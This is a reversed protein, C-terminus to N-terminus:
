EGGESTIEILDEDYFSHHGKEDVRWCFIRANPYMERIEELKYQNESSIYPTNRPKRLGEISKDYSLSKTRGCIRCRDKWIYHSFLSEVIIREYDHKHDSRHSSKSKQDKKKRHKPTENDWANM